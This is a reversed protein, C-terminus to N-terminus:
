GQNQGFAVDINENELLIMNKLDEESYGRLSYGRLVRTIILRPKLSEKEKVEIDRNRERATRVPKQRQESDNCRM